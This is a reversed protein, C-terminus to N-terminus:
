ARHLLTMKETLVPEGDQDKWVTETVVFTMKAKGGKTYVDTIKGESTLEDGVQIPRHYVFEEEGHLVMGGQKMLSGIAFMIPSTGDAGEPQIEPFKGWNSMAFGWTPPAPIADFGADNAAREDQYIPNEDTVALAFNSIPGREM